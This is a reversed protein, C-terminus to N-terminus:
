DYQKGTPFMGKSRGRLLTRRRDFWDFDIRCFVEARPLSPTTRQRPPRTCDAASGIGIVIGVENVGRLGGVTVWTQSEIDNTVVNASAADLLRLFVFARFEM